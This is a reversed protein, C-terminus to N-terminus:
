IRHRLSYKFLLSMQDKLVLVEEGEELAHVYHKALSLLKRCFDDICEDLSKSQKLHM